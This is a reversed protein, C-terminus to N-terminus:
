AREALLRRFLEPYAPHALALRCAGDMTFWGVEDHEEPLLNRPTGLWGTVAFLHLLLPGDTATEARVEGLSRWATTTVGVEEALERLLTQEPTEGPESHGGLLDWVGPYSTRGAARKGLLIRPGDDRVALGRVLLAGVCVREVKM